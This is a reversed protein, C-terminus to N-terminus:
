LSSIYQIMKQRTKLDPLTGYCAGMNETMHEVKSTAPIACTLSPHSIIFKLFFLAWNYCDFESAWEPLKKNEFQSFLNGGDMPRNAIVAIGRDKALPLLRDEVERHTINYTLQIFDIKESKMIKEFEAHYRGHSTTIGIYRIKGQEKLSRLTKLHEKWNLLNHIQILDFQNMGWLKQMEKFQEKGENTSRTWIKDASFLSKSYGIKKLAYGMVEQASGYMPSSDVMGGGMEFFKKLVLSRDDRLRVSNGVNFSIWTGMGIAPILEGSSPIKKRIFKEKNKGLISPFSLLSLLAVFNRRDM